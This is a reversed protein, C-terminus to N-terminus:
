KFRIGVLEMQVLIYYVTPAEDCKVGDGTFLLIGTFVGVAGLRMTRWISGSMEGRESPVHVRTGILVATQDFILTHTHTFVRELCM